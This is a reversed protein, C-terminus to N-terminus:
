TEPSYIKPRVNSELPKQILLINLKLNLKSSVKLINLHMNRKDPHTPRQILNTLKRTSTSSCSKGRHFVGISATSARRHVFLLTRTHLCRTDRLNIAGINEYDMMIGHCVMIKHYHHRMLNERHLISRAAGRGCATTCRHSNNWPQRSWIANHLVYIRTIIYKCALPFYQRFLLFAHSKIM